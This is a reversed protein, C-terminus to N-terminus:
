QNTRYTEIQQLYNTLVIQVAMKIIILDDEELVRLREQERKYKLQRYYLFDDTGGSDTTDAPIVQLTNFPLTNFAASNFM